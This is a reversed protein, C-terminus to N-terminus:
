NGWKARLNNRDHTDVTPSINAAGGGIRPPGQHMVSNSSCTPHALKLVHGFEHIITKRIRDARLPLNNFDWTERNTNITVGVMLWRRDEIPLHLNTGPVPLMTIFGYTLDFLGGGLPLPEIDEGIVQVRNAGTLNMNVDAINVRSSIGNWGSSSTRTITYMGLNIFNNLASEQINFRLNTNDYGNEGRRWDENHAEVEKVLVGTGIVGMFVAFTLVVSLFKKGKRKGMTKGGKSTKNQTHTCM